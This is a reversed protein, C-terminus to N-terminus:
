SVDSGSRITDDSMCPLASIIANEQEARQFIETVLKTKTRAIADDDM